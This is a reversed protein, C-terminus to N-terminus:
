TDHFTAALVCIKRFGKGVLECVEKVIEESADEEVGMPDPIDYHVGEAVQALLFVRKATAPFESVLAERQGGAMVLILDAGALISADVMRARHGELSLGCAAAARIAEPLPPQGPVAWTGASEVRWDAALGEENLKQAFAAAAIPSRFQNGTCVFLVSPM